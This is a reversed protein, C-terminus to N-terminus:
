APSTVFKSPSNNEKISVIIQAMQAEHRTFQNGKTSGEETFQEESFVIKDKIVKIAGQGKLICVLVDDKRQIAVTQPFDIKIPTGEEIHAKHTINGELSDFQFTRIFTDDQSSFTERVETTSKHGALQYLLTVQGNLSSFGNYQTKLAGNPEQMWSQIPPNGWLATGNKHCIFPRKGGHYCPGYLDLGKGKWATHIRMNQTDYALHLDNSLNIVLSRSSKTMPAMRFLQGPPDNYAPLVPQKKAAYGALGSLSLIGAVMIIRM